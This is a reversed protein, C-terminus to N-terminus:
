EMKAKLWKIMKLKAIVNYTSPQMIVTCVQEVIESVFGAEGQTKTLIIPDIYPRIKDYSVDSYDNCTGYSTYKLKPKGFSEFWRYFNKYDKFPSCSSVWLQHFIQANSEPM